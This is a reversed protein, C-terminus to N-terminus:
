LQIISELAYIWYKTQENKRQSVNSNNGCKAIIFLEAIFSPTSTGTQIRAKLEKPHIGLFPIAPDYSLETDLKNSYHCVM